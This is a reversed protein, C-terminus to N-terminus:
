WSLGYLFIRTRRGASAVAALQALRHSNAEERLDELVVKLDAMSQWRREPRKRLCRGITKELDPSLGPVLRSPSEPEGTLVAALTAVKTTGSFARRGTILEYLVAGFSFVDSRADTPKGEAQEPSMYAATGLITGEETQPHAVAPATGTTNGEDTSDCDVAEALKALGFDLVKISGQDTVMVNAPKLDRHFIGAAHAAALADAIQIAFKLCEDLGLRRRAIMDALSTGAVYEMAIFDVGNDQGIDYITIIHPHNLASAARAEHVFRKRSEASIAEDHRLLKVAVPRGLRTDVARYVIGMGGEGIPALIEYHSLTKTVM